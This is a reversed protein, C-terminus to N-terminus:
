APQSPDLSGLVAVGAESRPLALLQFSQKTRFSALHTVKALECMDKVTFHSRHNLKVLPLVSHLSARSYNRWRQKLELEQQPFILAYDCSM